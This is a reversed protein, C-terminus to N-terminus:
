KGKEDSIAVNLRTQVAFCNDKWCANQRLKKGIVSPTFQHLPIKM